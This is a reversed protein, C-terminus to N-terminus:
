SDPNAPEKASPFQDLEELDRKEVTQINITKEVDRLRVELRSILEVIRSIDSKLADLKENM